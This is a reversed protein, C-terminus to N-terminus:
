AHLVNELFSMDSELDFNGEVRGERVHIWDMGYLSIWGRM